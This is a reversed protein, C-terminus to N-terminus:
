GIDAYGVVAQLIVSPLAWLTVHEEHGTQAWTLRGDTQSLDLEALVALGRRRALAVAKEPDLWASVGAARHIDWWDFSKALQLHSLFDTPPAPNASVARFCHIPVDGARYVSYIPQPEAASV